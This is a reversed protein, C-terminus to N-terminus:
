NAAVAERVTMIGRFCNSTCRFGYEGPAQPTFEVVQVPSEDTVQASVSKDVSTPFILTDGCGVEGLARFNVKVPKGAQVAFRMPSYGGPTITLNLEQIGATNAQVEFPPPPEVGRIVPLETKFSQVQMDMALGLSNAALLIQERSVVDVNHTSVSIRLPGVDVWLSVLTRAQTLLWGKGWKTEIPRSNVLTEMDPNAPVWQRFFLAAGKKTRYTMDVAPEGAPGAPNVTIEVGGRDFSRPLYAPILIGFNGTLEQAELVKAAEPPEKPPPETTAIKWAVAAGALLLIIAPIALWPWLLSRRSKRRRHMADASSAKAIATM